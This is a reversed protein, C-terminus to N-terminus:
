YFNYMDHFRIAHKPTKYTKEIYTIMCDLQTKANDTKKCGVTAWTADLFQGLGYASSIPNQAKNDWSSERQILDFFAEKESPPVLTTAYEQFTMEVGLPIELPKPEAIVVDFTLLYSVLFAITLLKKM